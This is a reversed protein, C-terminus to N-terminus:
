FRGRVKGIVWPPSDTILSIFARAATRIRDTESSCLIKSGVSVSRTNEAEILARAEEISLRGYAWMFSDTSAFQNRFESYTM